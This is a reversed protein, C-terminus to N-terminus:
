SFPNNLIPKLMYHGLTYASRCIRLSSSYGSTLIEPWLQGFVLAAAPSTLCIAFAQAWVITDQQSTHSLSIIPIIESPQM